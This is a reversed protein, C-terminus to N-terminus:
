STRTARMVEDITTDGHLVKTMGCEYMSQMGAARAAAEIESDPARSLILRRIDSDIILIEAITSRGIFGSGACQDCGAKERMDPDDPLRLGPAGRAIEGIWSMREPHPSSCHPCLRRVLRQAVVARLTSALLYNEIGMDILRTVSAAASNTHLTSLVLHGTLSAQIAIRATELDRIEGIMVIDPDQRLISRLAAPFTLGIGAHVQVQNIGQLQYEIPDEVTFLKREPTNLGTMATYLTTTKGSGTPGTVLVIGDPEKLFADFTKIQDPDFGLATFDLKVRSRDLIRMVVNEGFATPLTSVRFDIDIGRLAIKTRGDQPLRREAIDLRSMIKIRSTVAARMAPDLRRATHLVGDIRFRVLLSDVAPELHIDSARAEVAEAVIENVLRITPAESALDRLRQIDVDAVRAEDIAASLHHDPDGRGYLNDFVREFLAPTFLLVSIPLGVLYSIARCPDQDFPDIVGLTLGADARALPILRNRRCFDAGVLDLMIPEVPIDTPEVLNIQLFTALATTLDAEAMLGLKILVRDFREGTATARRARVLTAEDILKSTRLFEGFGHALTDEAAVVDGLPSRPLGPPRPAPPLSIQVM